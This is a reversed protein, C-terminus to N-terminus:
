SHASNCLKGNEFQGEFVDGGAMTLIMSGSAHGNLWSGKIVDGKLTTLEGPGTQAGRQFTGAFKSGDNWRGSDHTLIQFPYNLPPYSVGSQARDTLSTVTISGKMAIGQEPMGMGLLLLCGMATPKGMQLSARTLTTTATYGLGQETRYDGLLHEKLFMVTGLHFNEKAKLLVM